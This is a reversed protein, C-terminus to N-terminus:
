CQIVSQGDEDDVPSASNVERRKVSKTEFTAAHLIVISDRAAKLLRRYQVESKRLHEQVLGPTTM